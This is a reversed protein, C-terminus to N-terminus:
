QTTRGVLADLPSRDVRRGAARRQPRLRVGGTTRVAVAAPGGRGPGPVRTAYPGGHQRGTDAPVCGAGGGDGRGGLEVTTRARLRPLRDDAHLARDGMARQEVLDM